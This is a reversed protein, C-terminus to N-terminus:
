LLFVLLAIRLAPFIDQHIERERCELNVLGCVYVDSGIVWNKITIRVEEVSSAPSADTDFWIRSEPAYEFSFTRM